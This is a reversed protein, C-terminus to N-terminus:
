EEDDGWAEKAKDQVCQLAFKMGELFEKSPCTDAQNEITQGLAKINNRYNQLEELANSFLLSSTVEEYTKQLKKLKADSINKKLRTMVGM